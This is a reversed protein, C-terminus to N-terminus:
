NLVGAALLGGLILATMWVPTIGLFGGAKGNFWKWVGEEAENRWRYVLDMVLLVGLALYAATPEEVRFTNLAGWMCGCILGM